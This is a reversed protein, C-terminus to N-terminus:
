GPVCCWSPDVGQSVRRSRRGRRGREMQRPRSGSLSGTRYQVHSQLQALISYLLEGDLWRGPRPPREAEQPKAASKRSPWRCYCWSFGALWCAAARRAAPLQSNSHLDSPGACCLLMVVLVRLGPFLGTFLKPTTSLLPTSRRGSADRPSLLPWCLLPPQRVTRRCCFWQLPLVAPWGLHALARCADYLAGLM